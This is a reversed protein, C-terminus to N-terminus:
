IFKTYIKRGSGLGVRINEAAQESEYENKYTVRLKLLDPISTFGIDRGNISISM